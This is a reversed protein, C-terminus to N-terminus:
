GFISKLFEKLHWHKGPCRAEMSFGMINTGRTVVLGVPNQGPFVLTFVVGDGCSDENDIKASAANAYMGSPGWDEIFREPPYSSRTEPDDWMKYADQYKQERLLSLFRDMTREQSYNQFYFYLSGGVIAAALGWLVVRWVLRSRKGEAKGYNEDLIAM